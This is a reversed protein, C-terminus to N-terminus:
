ECDPCHKEVRERAAKAKEKATRCRKEPDEPGTLECIRDMSREMSGLAKCAKDCDLIGNALQSESEEFLALAGELSLTLRKGDKDEEITSSPPEAYNLRDRAPAQEADAGPEEAKSKEPPGNSPTERAPPAGGLACGSVHALALASAFWRKV